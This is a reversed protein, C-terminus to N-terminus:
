FEVSVSGIVTFPDGPRVAERFTESSRIYDVDFLNQFNLNAQWNDQRYFLAADTRVYSPLTFTNDLDGQRDGVFFVGAGVGLGQLSGQQIQYSTWLSASNEPVNALKNGVPFENDETIEADTYAYAAIVNWGPLIEGAVDLEIGRSRVEGAAISFDTNDPDITAFNNREIQYFALTSTLKQNLFEGKVGLEYQNGTSPELVDGAVTTSNFPDPNFSTSYSAYLSIPAIPQYVIGLRPSFKEQSQESTLNETFDISEQDYIDLRGGALFKFQESLSIQDQLYIGILDARINEDRVFSTLDEPEINPVPDAEQTFVDILFIPDDPLRGQRGVSTTRDLDVGVLLQHEVKGTAFEGVVNTQLSYNERIDENRRFGRELIGSDDILVSDLRFDSTDGSVLRFSNRLKWKDSFRHELQYSASLQELEYEDDPQQFIRDFPIDAVGDDIAVIGRDFPNAQNIYSFDILLDTNKGIQWSITPALSLRTADQDFDRFGNNVEFAANLRYLLNQESDIADSFDFSSQFLGFNGLEIKTEAFPESLPKKTVLNIVGGPELNGYLISAPGKLVEIRELREASPLGQGFATQRFGNILTTDQAFGRIVFREATGGFSDGTSVGSVNRLADELRNAQQDEIVQQPVVQISQPIDKLPTDTRTATTAEPVTYDDDEEEGEGTAIVEIEEDPTQQATAEPTINLVLNQSSPVVEASPAQNEGTITLRVNSEDIQTVTIERIGPAPNSQKFEDGAPLALTADLLDIVLNNGEPLILPVLKQEGAATQLILELESETQNIQVGTVRTIGQAILNSIPKISHRDSKKTEWDGEKAQILDRKQLNNHNIKEQNKAAVARESLACIM